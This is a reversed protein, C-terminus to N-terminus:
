SEDNEVRVSEMINHKYETNDPLLFYRRLADEVCTPLSDFKPLVLRFFVYLDGRQEEDCGDDYFPLGKGKVVHVKDGTVYPVEIVEDFYQFALFKRTYYGYLSIDFEVHIDFPSLVTDIRLIPHEQINLRVIIDGRTNASLWDGKSPFVYEDRYNLLSIYLDESSQVPKGTTM